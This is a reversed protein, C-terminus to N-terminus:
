TMDVDDDMMNVRPAPATKKVYMVSTASSTMTLMLPSADNATVDCRLRTVDGLEHLQRLNDIVVSRSNDNINNHAATFIM